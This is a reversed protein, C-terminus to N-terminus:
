EVLFGRRRMSSWMFNWDLSDYAQAFDIEIFGRTVKRQMATNIEGALVAGDVLQRGQIFVSQFPSVLLGIIERFRKGLVKAIM